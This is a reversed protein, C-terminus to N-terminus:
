IFNLISIFILTLMLLKIQKFLICFFDFCLLYTSNSLVFFYLFVSIKVSSVVKHMTGLRDGYKLFSKLYCVKTLKVMLHTQIHRTFVQLQSM